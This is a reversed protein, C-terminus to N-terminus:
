KMGNSARTPWKFGKPLGLWFARLHYAVDGALVELQNVERQYHGDPQDDNQTVCAWM